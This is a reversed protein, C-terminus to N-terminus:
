NFLESAPVGLEKSLISQKIADPKQSGALWCRVTTESVMCIEAMRRVWRTKPAVAERTPLATYIEAFKGKTNM